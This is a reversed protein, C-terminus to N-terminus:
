PAVVSWASFSGSAFGDAFIPLPGPKRELAPLWGPNAGEGAYAGRYTGLHRRGNFDRDGDAYPALESAGVVAGALAGPLPHLDLRDVGGTLVGDPNTLYADAKAYTGTVNGTQVGGVLPTSAFVANGLQKQEFMPDGGVIQLGTGTAVVTNHAILIRKPVDNHPQIFVASGVDNVFLNDYIIANGEAQLLAEGTPNQHFVNGYVLTDDDAGSGSLPQHGLLLNPRANGGFAANQAKSLVNHRIVTPGNAPMGLATNRANQHKIQLNYGLTDRILNHEIVGNVFADEGDSNGLYIGTGASDIVNRRIVWNWAPSKTNIGVIQQDADHDHIYLEELTIHHSSTSDSEAKVGDGQRGQGDLELRRIVVYSADRISITNCCNRGTFVAVAGSAPGEIILCRDPQGVLGHIPLGSAYTGAALQLLDGPGLGAVLALYNSPNGNLVQEPVTAACGGIQGASAARLENTACFVLFLTLLAFARNM